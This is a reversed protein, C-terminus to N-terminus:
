CGSTTHAYAHRVIEDCTLREFRTKGIGEICVFKIAGDRAKKDTRMALALTEAGIDSPAEVPLGCRQLVRRIRQCDGRSCLGLRCSVRAAAVM